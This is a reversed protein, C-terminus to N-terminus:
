FVREPEAATEIEVECVAEDAHVHVVERAVVALLSARRHGLQQSTAVLEASEGRANLEVEHALRPNTLLATIRLPTRVGTPRYPPTSAPSRGSSRAAITIRSVTSRARM